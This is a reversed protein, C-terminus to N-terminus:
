LGGEKTEKTQLHAPCCYMLLLHLHCRFSGSTRISKTLQLASKEEPTTSRGTRGSASISRSVLLVLFGFPGITTVPGGIMPAQVHGM